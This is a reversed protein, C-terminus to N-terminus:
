SPVKRWLMRERILAIDAGAPVTAGLLGGGTTSLFQRRELTAERHGNNM